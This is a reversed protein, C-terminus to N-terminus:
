TLARGAKRNQRGKYSKLRVRSTTESESMSRVACSRKKMYNIRMQCKLHTELQGNPLPFPFLFPFVSFSVTFIKSETPCCQRTFFNNSQCSLNIKLALNAFCDTKIPSFAFNDFQAHGHSWQGTVMGTWQWCRFDVTLNQV